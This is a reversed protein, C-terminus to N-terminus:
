RSLPHGCHGEEFDWVEAKEGQELRRYVEYIDATPPVDIALIRDETSEYTCGLRELQKWHEEFRPSKADTGSKLILRYTSHGGRIVVGTVMLQGARLEARVVDENSLGYTAFPVNRLRYRGQGLDEAWMSEAGYSHWSNGNQDLEVALKVLFRGRASPKQASKIMRRM